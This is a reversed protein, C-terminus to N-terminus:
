CGFIALGFPHNECVFDMQLLPKDPLGRNAGNAGDEVAPLSLQAPQPVLTKLNGGMVNALEGVADRMQEATVAPPEVAFMVAAAQRAMAVSCSLTVAGNWAGQIDVRGTLCDTADGAPKRPGPLAELNLLSSWVGATLQEIDSENFEM